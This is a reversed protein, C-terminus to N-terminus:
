GAAKRRLHKAVKKIPRAFSGILDGLIQPDGNKVDVWRIESIDESPIFKGSIYKCLHTIVVNVSRPDVGFDSETSVVREVEVDFGTEEKAKRKSAEKITEKFSFHGGPLVWETFYPRKGRKGILVKTRDKYIVQNVEPMPPVYKVLEGIQQEKTITEQFYERCGLGLNEPLKGLKFWKAELAEGKRIKLRGGVIKALFTVALHYGRPDLGKKDAESKVLGLIKVELGTEENVERVLADELDEDYHVHGGPVVWSGKDPEKARKILLVNERDQIIANVVILPPKRKKLEKLHKKITPKAM